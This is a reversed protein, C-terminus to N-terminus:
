TEEALDQTKMYQRKLAVFNNQSNNLALCGTISQLYM